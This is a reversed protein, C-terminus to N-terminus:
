QNDCIIIEQPDNLEGFWVVAYEGYIGVGIANWTIKKWMGKNSIIPDHSKSVKWGKLAMEPNAGSSQYYAIEYGYGPYGAIEMPKKWMCEAESHDNTYCCSSWNGEDSWSHPNCKNNRDFEYNEVLDKAHTRAVLSLAASLPIPALKQEKRYANIMEYLKKEESSICDAPPIFLSILFTLIILFM